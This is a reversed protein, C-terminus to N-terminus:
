LKVPKQKEGGLLKYNKVDVGEDLTATYYEDVRQIKREENIKLLILVNARFTKGSAPRGPLPGVMTGHYVCRIVATSDELVDIAKIDIGFDKIATLWNTRFRALSSLGQRQTFFAHDYWEVTPSFQALFTPTDASLGTTWSKM